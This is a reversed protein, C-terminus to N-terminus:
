ADERLVRRGGHGDLSSVGAPSFGTGERGFSLGRDRRFFYERLGSQYLFSKEPTFRQLLQLVERNNRAYAPLDMDPKREINLQYGDKAVFACGVTEVSPRGTLFVLLMGGPKLMEYCREGIRGTERDDLHDVLNWLLIGDFSHPPYDLYQWLEDSHLGRRLNRSLNFFMDCVYLRKVRHAFFRINDGCVPGADLVQSERIPELGELFLRLANSTYGCFPAEPSSHDLLHEFPSGM